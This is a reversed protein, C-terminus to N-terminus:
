GYNIYIQLLSIVPIM